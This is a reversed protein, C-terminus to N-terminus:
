DRKSRPGKWPYLEEISRQADGSASAKLQDPYFKVVAYKFGGQHLKSVNDEDVILIKVYKGVDDEGKAFFMAPRFQINLEKLNLFFVLKDTTNYAVINFEDRYANVIYTKKPNDSVQLTFVRLLESFKKGRKEGLSKVAKMDPGAAPRFPLSRPSFLAMSYGPWIDWDDVLIHNGLEELIIEKVTGQTVLERSEDTFAKLEALSLNTSDEAFSLASVGVGVVLVVAMVIIKMKNM